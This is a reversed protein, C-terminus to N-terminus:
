VSHTKQGGVFKQPYNRVPFPVYVKMYGQTRSHMTEMTSAVSSLRENSATNITNYTNCITHTLCRLLVITRYENWSCASITNTYPWAPPFPRSAARFFRAVYGSLCWCWMVCCIFGSIPTQTFMHGKLCVFMCPPRLSHTCWINEMINLVVRNCAGPLHGALMTYVLPCGSNDSDGGVHPPIIVM